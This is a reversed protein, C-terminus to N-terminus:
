LQQSSIDSLMGILLYLALNAILIMCLVFGLTLSKEM